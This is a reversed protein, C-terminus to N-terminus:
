VKTWVAQGFQEIEAVAKGEVSVSLSRSSVSASTWVTLSSRLVLTLHAAHIWGILVSLGPSSLIAHATSVYRHTRTRRNYALTRYSIRDGSGGDIGGLKEEERKQPTSDQRGPAAAPNVLSGGAGRDEAVWMKVDEVVNKEEDLGYCYVGKAKEEGGHRDLTITVPYPFSGQATM